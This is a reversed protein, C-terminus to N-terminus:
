RLIPGSSQNATRLDDTLNQHQKALFARRGYAGGYHGGTKAASHCNCPPDNQWENYYLEESCGSCGGCGGCCGGYYGSGYFAQRLRQMFFCNGLIPCSGVGAGCGVDGCGCAPECCADYCGCAPECCSDCCGCSPGSCSDCCGCAPECCTDSCGCAPEPCCCGPEAIGCSPGGCAGMGCGGYPMMCCGVSSACVLACVLSFLQRTSMAQYESLFYQFVYAGGGSLKQRLREHLNIPVETRLQGSFRYFRCLNDSGNSATRAPNSREYSM